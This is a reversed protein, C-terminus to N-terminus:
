LSISPHQKSLHDVNNVITMGILNDVPIQFWLIEQYNGLFSEIDHKNVKTQTVAPLFISSFLDLRILAAPMSHSGCVIHSGLKELM